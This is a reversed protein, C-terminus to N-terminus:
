PISENPRDNRSGKTPEDGTDSDSKVPKENRHREFCEFVYAWGRARADRALEPMVGPTPTHVTRPSDETMSRGDWRCM